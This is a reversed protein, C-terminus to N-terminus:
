GPEARGERIGAALPRPVWGFERQARGSDLSTDLPRPAALPLEERTVGTIGATPLGLVEGVRLGLAHRSLREPGGLHYRGRGQTRLLSAVAAAISDVDLPTRYQDTFLRLPRGARLAWAISESASPRPGYGLGHVLALRLVAAGPDAALIAEEGLLKSRGYAQLPSPPDEERQFSRDGLFVLDTSFALLRLGRRSSLRALTEAARVNVAEADSPRAECDDVGLAAAHIIADPRASDLAAEISRPDGLDLPVAPLGAPPLARHQAVIVRFAPELLSVLRGGVLGGAGTVLVRV